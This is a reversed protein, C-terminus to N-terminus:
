SIFTRMKIQLMIRIIQILDRTIIFNKTMNNFNKQQYVHFLIKKQEYYFM